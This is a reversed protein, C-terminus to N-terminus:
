FFDCNHWTIKMDRIMKTSPAISNEKVLNEGYTVEKPIQQINSTAKIM